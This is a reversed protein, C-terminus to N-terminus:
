YPAFFPPAYTEPMFGYLERDFHRRRPAPARAPARGDGTIEGDETVVVWRGARKEIALVRGVGPVVEGREVGIMGRSSEVLAAGNYVDRVRYGSVIKSAPAATQAPAADPRASENKTARTIASEAKASLSQTVPAAATERAITKSAPPTAPANATEAQIRKEAADLKARLERVDAQLTAIQRQTAADPVPQQVTPASQATEQAPPAQTQQATAEKPQDTSPARTLALGALGILAAMLGYRIKTSRRARRDIVIEVPFRDSARADPQPPEPPVILDKM